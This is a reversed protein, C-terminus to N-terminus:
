KGYAQRILMWVTEAMRKRGLPALHISDLTAGHEALVAIFVRKPILLVRHKAALSRQIRGYDNCLPPLPLEFM